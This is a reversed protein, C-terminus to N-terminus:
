HMVWAEMVLWSNVTRFRGSAMPTTNRTTPIALPILIQGSSRTIWHSRGSALPNAAPAASVRAHARCWAEIPYLVREEIPIMARRRGRRLAVRSLRNLAVAAVAYVNGKGDANVYGSYRSYGRQKM